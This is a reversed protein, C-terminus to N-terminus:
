QKLASYLDDSATYYLVTCDDNPQANTHAGLDAFVSATPADYAFFGVKEHGSAEDFYFLARTDTSLGTPRRAKGAVVDFEAQPAFATTTAWTDTPLVRTSLRLGPSSGGALRVLLSTSSTGVVLDSFTEGVALASGELNLDALTMDLAPGVFPDVHSSRTFGVFSRLDTGIGYLHNGDRTLAIRQGPALGTGPLTRAPDWAVSADVRDVYHVIGDGPTIWALTTEDGTVTSMDDISSTSPALKVGAAWTKTPDCIPAPPPPAGDGVAGADADAMAADSAGDAADMADAEADATADAEADLGTDPTTGDVFTVDKGSDLPQLPAPTDDCAAVLLAACLVLKRM